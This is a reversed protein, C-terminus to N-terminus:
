FLMTELVVTANHRNSVISVADWIGGQIGIEQGVAFMLDCFMGDADQFEWSDTQWDSATAIESDEGPPESPPGKAFDFSGTAGDVEVDVRPFDIWALGDGISEPFERTEAM